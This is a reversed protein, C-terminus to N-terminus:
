ISHWFRRIHENLYAEMHKNPLYDWIEGPPRSLALWKRGYSDEYRRGGGKGDDIPPSLHVWHPPYEPYPEDGQMSIGMTVQKGSLSGTVIRYPFTIVLGIQSSVAGTNYGLSELEQRIREINQSM